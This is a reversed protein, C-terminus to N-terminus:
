RFAKRLRQAVKSFPWAGGRIARAHEDLGQEVLWEAAWYCLESPALRRNHWNAGLLHLAEERGGVHEVWDVPSTDDAFAERLREEAGLERARSTRGRRTPRGLSGVSITSDFAMRNQVSGSVGPKKM